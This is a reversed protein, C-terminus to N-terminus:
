IKGGFYHYAWESGDNIATPNGHGRAIELASKMEDWVDLQAQKLESQSLVYEHIFPTKDSKKIFVLTAKETGLM